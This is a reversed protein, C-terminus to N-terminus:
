KKESEKTVRSISTAVNIVLIFLMTILGGVDDKRWGTRVFENYM